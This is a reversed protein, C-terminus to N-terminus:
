GPLLQLDHGEFATVVGRIRGAANGVEDALVDGVGRLQDGAGRLLEAVVVGDVGAGAMLDQLDVEVAAGYQDAVQGGAPLPPLAEVLEHDGGAGGRCARGQGPDPCVADM